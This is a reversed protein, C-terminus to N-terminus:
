VQEQEKEEEEKKKRHRFVFFKQGVFSIIMIVFTTFIAVMIQNLAFNTLLFKMLYDILFVLGYVSVFRVVEAKSKQKSEFTFFKNWFYSNTLGVIQGIVTAIYIKYLEISEPKTINVGFCILVLWYVGVGIATNLGGVLLFKIRYDLNKGWIFLRKLM